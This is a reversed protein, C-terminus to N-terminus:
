CGTRHTAKALPTFDSSVPEFRARRVLGFAYQRQTEIQWPSLGARQAGRLSADIFAIVYRAGSRAASAAIRATVASMIGMGRYASPTYANELLAEDLSLAPLGAAKRIADSYGTTLWQIHCPRDATQDVAVFCRSLLSHQEVMRLRWEIDARERAAAPGDAMPVLASLDDPRFARLSIPIHAPPAPFPITLDRRLGIRIRQGYPGAKLRRMVKSGLAALRSDGVETVGARREFANSM